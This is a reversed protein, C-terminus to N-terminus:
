SLLCDSKDFFYGIAAVKASGLNLVASNVSFSVMSAM